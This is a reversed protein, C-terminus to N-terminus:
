CERCCDGSEGARVLGCASGDGKRWGSEEQWGDGWQEEFSGVFKGRGPKTYLFAPHGIGHCNCYDINPNPPRAGKGGTKGGKGKEQEGKGLGKM